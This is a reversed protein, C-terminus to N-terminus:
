VAPPVSPTWLVGEQVRQVERTGAIGLYPCGAVERRLTLAADGPAIWALRGREIWPALDFDRADDDEPVTDWGGGVPYCDAGWDNAGQTDAPRPRAFYTVTWGAHRGVMVARVVAQVGESDLLRPLVYPAGPGPKVLHATWEPAVAFRLAGTVALVTEPRADPPRLAAHYDWWAGDIGETDIAFTVVEGSIPDRAIPVRPLAAWYAQVAEDLAERVAREYARAEALADAAIEADAVYETVRDREARLGRLALLARTRAGLPSEVAFNPRPRLLAEIEESSLRSADGARGALIADLDLPEPDPMRSDEGGM